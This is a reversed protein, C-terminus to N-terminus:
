CRSGEALGRREGENMDIDLEGAEERSMGGGNSVLRKM